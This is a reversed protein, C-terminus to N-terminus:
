KIFGKALPDDIHKKLEEQEIAAMGDPCKFIPQTGPILKIKFLPERKLPL